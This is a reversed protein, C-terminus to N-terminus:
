QIAAIAANEAEEAMELYVSLCSLCRGGEDGRSDLGIHEFIEAVLASSCTNTRVLVWMKQLWEDSCCGACQDADGGTRCLHRVLGQTKMHWSREPFAAVFKPVVSMTGM